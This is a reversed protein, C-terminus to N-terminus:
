TNFDELGSIDSLNSMKNFMFSADENLYPHSDESWWYITGNSYWMYIPYNSKSVINDDTM